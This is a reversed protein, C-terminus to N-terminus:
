RTVKAKPLLRRLRQMGDDTIKTEGLRLEELAQLRALYQISEDTVPDGLLWLKRMSTQSALRAIGRDSINDGGLYLENLKMAAVSELGADTIKTGPVSLIRVSSLKSVARLGADSFRSDKAWLETVRSDNSFADFGVGTVPTNEVIVEQLSSLSTLEALGSDTFTTETLKISELRKLRLRAGLTVGVRTRALGLKRLRPLSQVNALGANTIKTGSLELEELMELRSVPTLAADTIATNELDLYALLPLSGIQVLGADHVKTSYLILRTITPITWLPVLEDDSAETDGLDVENVGPLRPLLELAEKPKSDSDFYVRRHGPTTETVYGKANNIATIIAAARNRWWLVSGGILLAAITITIVSRAIANRRARGDQQRRSEVIYAVQDPNAQPLTDTHQSTEIHFREYQDLEGASALTGVGARWDDARTSLRRHVLALALDTRLAHVLGATGTRMDDSERLHSFDILRVREPLTLFDVDPCDERLVPLIRKSLGLARDLERTCEASALSSRTIVFLFFDSELILRDAQVHFDQGDAFEWDGRAQVGASRLMPCWRDIFPRHEWSYCVFATAWVQAEGDVPGRASPDM